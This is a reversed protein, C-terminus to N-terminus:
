QCFDLILKAIEAKPRCCQVFRDTRCPGYPAESTMVVGGKASGIVVWVNRGEARRGAIWDQQLVSLSPNKGSTIDIMTADRKPLEIWKWEVWLDRRRGSYWSDATGGRYPNAMKERHFETVPPLYRHVSAIFRTEPGSSM